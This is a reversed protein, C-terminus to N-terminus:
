METEAKSELIIFNSNYNNNTSKIVFQGTTDATNYLQDTENFPPEYYVNPVSKEFENLAALFQDSFGAAKLIKNREM